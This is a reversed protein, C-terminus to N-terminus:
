SLCHPRRTLPLTPTPNVNTNPYNNPNPKPNLNPNLNPNPNPDPNPNPNPNPNPYPQVLLTLAEAELASFNVKSHNVATNALSRRYWEHTRPATSSNMMPFDPDFSSGIVGVHGAAM